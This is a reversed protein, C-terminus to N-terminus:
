IYLIRLKRPGSCRFQGNLVNNCAVRNLISVRSVRSWFTAHRHKKSGPELGMQKMIEATENAAHNGCIAPFDWNHEWPQRFSFDKFSLGEHMCVPLHFGRPPEPSHLSDLGWAPQYPKNGYKEYNDFMEQLMEKREFQFGHFHGFATIKKLAVMETNHPYKGFYWRAVQCVLDPDTEPRPCIYADYYIGPRGCKKATDKDHSCKM